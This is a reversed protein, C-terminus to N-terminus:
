TSGVNESHVLIDDVYVELNRGIQKKFVKEILRQFTEGINCFEFPIVTYCYTGEEIIFSIKGEDELHMRVLNYGSHTDMFRLLQCDFCEDVLNDILPPLYNDKLCTTNLNM